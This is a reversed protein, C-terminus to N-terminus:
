KKCIIVFQGIFIPLPNLNAKKNHIPYSATVNWVLYFLSTAISTIQMKAVLLFLLLIYFLLKYFIHTGGSNNLSFPENNNNAMIRSFQNIFQTGSHLFALITLNKDVRTEAEPSSDM